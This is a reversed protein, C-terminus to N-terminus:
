PSRDRPLDRFNFRLLASLLVGAVGLAIVASIGNVAM